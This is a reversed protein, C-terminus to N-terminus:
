VVMLDSVSSIVTSWPMTGSNLGHPQVGSNSEAHGGGLYVNKEEINYLM